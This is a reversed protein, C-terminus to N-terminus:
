QALELSGGPELVRVEVDPALAACRAAFTQPPTHLLAAHRRHLGVPLYTGWHIPVAVCPRLLAAAEAAQEPDMHGPGLTPGWGWIPLLAVDLRGLEAMGDFRETDGAFYVRRGGASVVYGVTDAEGGLPSRRGDHVAPVALVSVDGVPLEEGVALEVLERGSRRLPGSGGRPVVVLAAPDLARLSPLDLHDRHLHSILVAHLPGPPAPEGAHRRLHAVRPRLLPDTLLRTGSLELRVTAHGLWTLRDAM